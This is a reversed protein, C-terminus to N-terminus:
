SGTAQNTLDVHGLTSQPEFEGSRDIRALCKGSCHKQGGRLDSPSIEGVDHVQRNGGGLGICGVDGIGTVRQNPTVREGLGQLFGDGM